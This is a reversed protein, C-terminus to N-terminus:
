LGGARPAPTIAPPNSPPQESPAPDDQPPREPSGLVDADPPDRDVPAANQQRNMAQILSAMQERLQAVDAVSAAQDSHQAAALQEAPGVMPPNDRFEAADRRADDYEESYWSRLTGDDNTRPEDLKYGGLQELAGVRDVLDRFLNRDSSSLNSSEGFM